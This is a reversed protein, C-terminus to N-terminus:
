VVLVTLFCFFKRVAPTGGHPDPSLLVAIVTGAFFVLLPIWFPPFRMRQSSMLLAAFALALLVNSVAISFLISVVSGCTLYFAAKELSFDSLKM